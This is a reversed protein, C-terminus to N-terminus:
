SMRTSKPWLPPIPSSVNVTPYSKLFNKLYPPLDHLGISDIPRSAPHHGSIVDKVEQLKSFLSDYVQIIQKSYNYFEQGERTLRFRKKRREILFSECQREL